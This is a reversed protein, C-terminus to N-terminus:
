PLWGYFFHTHDLFAYKAMMLPFGGFIMLCKPCTFSIYRPEYPLHPFYEHMKTTSLLRADNDRDWAPLSYYMLYLITRLTSFSFNVTSLVWAKNNFYALYLTSVSLKVCNDMFVVDVIDGFKVIFTIWTFSSWIKNMVSHFSERIEVCYCCSM